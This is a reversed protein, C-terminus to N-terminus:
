FDFNFTVVSEEGEHPKYYRDDWQDAKKQAKENADKKAWSRITALHNKYKAGKSAIYESLREIRNEWDKPFESKLKEVDEDSLLVNQYQGYKHRTPKDPVSSPIDREELREERNELRKDKNKLRKDRIEPPSKDPCKDMLAPVNTKAEEIRARYARKRDAETTTQGVFNQVDLMFIAGSDLIEIFGMEAFLTLAKEVTGLQHNTITAIMQANYPIRENYMLLGDRKLSKLYLKLLINSYLYGDPMSELIKQADDDFYDEKLRMYYYKKADAM